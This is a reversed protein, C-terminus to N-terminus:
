WASYRTRVGPATESRSRCIRFARTSRTAASWRFRSGRPGPHAALPRSGSSGPSARRSTPAPISTPASASPNATPGTFCMSYRTEGRSGAVSIRTGDTRINTAQQPGRGRLVHKKIIGNTCQAGFLLWVTQAPACDAQGGTIHRFFIRKPSAAADRHRSPLSIYEEGFREANNEPM